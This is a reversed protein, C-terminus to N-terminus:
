SAKVLMRAWGAGVWVAAARRREARMAGHGLQQWLFWWATCYDDTEGLVHSCRLHLCLAKERQTELHRKWWTVCLWYVNTLPCLLIPLFIPLSSWLLNNESAEVDPLVIICFSAEVNMRSSLLYFILLCFAFTGYVTLFKVPDRNTSNRRLTCAESIHKCKLASLM